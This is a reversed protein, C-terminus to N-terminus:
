TRLMLLVDSVSLGSQPFMIKPDCKRRDYKQYDYYADDASDHYGDSSEEIDTFYLDEVNGIDSEDDSSSCKHINQSYIYHESTESETEVPRSEVDEVGHRKRKLAHSQRKVFSKSLVSFKDDSESLTIETNDFIESSSKCM